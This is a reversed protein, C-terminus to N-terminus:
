AASESPEEQLEMKNVVGDTYEGGLKILNHLWRQKSREYEYDYKEQAKEPWDTMNIRLQPDDDWHGAAALTRKAAVWRLIDMNDSVLDSGVNDSYAKVKEMTSDPDPTENKFVNWLAAEGYKWAIIGHGYSRDLVKSRNDPLKGDKIWYYVARALRGNGDPFMHAGTIGLYMQAAFKQLSKDTPEIETQMHEFFSGLIKDSNKPPDLDIIGGPGEVRAHNPGEWRTFQEEDRLLGNAVALIDMFQDTSTQKLVNVRLAPDTVELGALEGFHQLRNLNDPHHDHPKESM